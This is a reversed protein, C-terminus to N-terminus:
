GRVGAASTGGYSGYKPASMPRIRNSRIEGNMTDLTKFQSLRKKSATGGRTGVSMTDGDRDIWLKFLTMNNSITGYYSHDSTCVSHLFYPNKCFRDSNRCM